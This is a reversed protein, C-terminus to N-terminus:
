CASSDLTTNFLTSVELLLPTSGRDDKEESLSLASSRRHPLARSEPVCPRGVRRSAGAQRERGARGIGEAPRFAFPAAMIALTAAAARASLAVAVASTAGCWGCSRRGGRGAPVAADAPAGGRPAAPPQRGAHRRGRDGSDLSDIANSTPTSVSVTPPLPRPQIPPLWPRCRYRWM